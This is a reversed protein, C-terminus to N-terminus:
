FSEKNKNEILFVRPNYRRPRSAINRMLEFGYPLHLIDILDHDKILIPVQKMMKEEM